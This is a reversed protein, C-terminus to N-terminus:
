CDEHKGKGIKNVGWDGETIAYVYTDKWIPKGSEITM